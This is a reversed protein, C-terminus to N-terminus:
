KWELFLGVVSFPLMRGEKGLVNSNASMIPYVWAPTSWFLLFWATWVYRVVKKGKRGRGKEDGDKGNGGEEEGFCCVWGWGM